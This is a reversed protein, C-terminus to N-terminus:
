RARRSVLAIQASGLAAIAAADRHGARPLPVVETRQRRPRLEVAAEELGHIGSAHRGDRHVRAIGVEGEDPSRAAADPEGVHAAARGRPPRDGVFEAGQRDAGIAMSGLKSGVLLLTVMQSPSPSAKSWCDPTSTFPVYMGPSGAPTHFGAMTSPVADCGASRSGLAGRLMRLDADIRGLV